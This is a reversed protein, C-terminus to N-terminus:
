GAATVRCMATARLVACKMEVKKPFRESWMISVNIRNM